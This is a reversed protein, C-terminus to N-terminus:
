GRARQYYHFLEHVLHRLAALTSEDGAPDLRFAVELMSDTLNLSVLIEKATVGAGDPARAFLDRITEALRLDTEHVAHGRCAPEESLWLTRLGPEQRCFQIYADLLTDILVASDRVEDAGAIREVMETARDLHRAIIATVIAGRDAFYHYVTGVSVEARAALASTTLAGPGQEDLLATAADLIREIKEIGRKQSPKRRM